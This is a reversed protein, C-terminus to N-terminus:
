SFDFRIKKKLRPMVSLADGEILKIKEGDGSQEIYKKAIEINEESLEITHIVSNKKLNRAIRVTTYAIATGIELVRKPNTILVLQEIFEASQWSLIPVNHEKAFTGMENILDDQEKRFSSIYKEQSPYFIKSM